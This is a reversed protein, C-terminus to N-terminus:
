VDGRKAKKDAKVQLRRLERQRAKLAAALIGLQSDPVFMLPWGAKTLTVGGLVPVLTIPSVDMADNSSM